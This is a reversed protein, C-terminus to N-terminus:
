DFCIIKTVRNDSENMVYVLEIPCDVGENNMKTASYQGDKNYVKVQYGKGAIKMGRKTLLEVGDPLTIYYGKWYGVVYNVPEGAEMLTLINSRTVSSELLKSRLDAVNHRKM